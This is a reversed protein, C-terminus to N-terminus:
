TDPSYGSKDEASVDPWSVNDFVELEQKQQVVAAYM